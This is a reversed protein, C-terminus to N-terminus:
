YIQLCFYCDAQWDFYFCLVVVNDFVVAKANNSLVVSQLLASSKM